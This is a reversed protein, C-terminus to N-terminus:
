GRPESQPFRLAGLHKLASRAAATLPKELTLHYAIGAATAALATVVVAAELPLTRGALRTLAHTAFSLAVPHVLYVAYSAAGFLVLLRPLALPRHWEIEVIGAVFLAAALGFAIRGHLPEVQVAPFFLMFALFAAAGMFALLGPLPMTRHRLLVAVGVGFIFELNFPSLFFSAPFPLPGALAGAVILAAWAPMLWLGKRGVVIVLGFLAYFFIEHVLTWAVGLVPLPPYPLLLASMLINVPDRQSPIGAAPFMLYLLTLPLLVGWYPPYIRLFRKRAYGGLKSRDGLDDWHVWTIIFGSLVFFFDVGVYFYHLHGGFPVDGYFRPEEAIAGAHHLVVLFAAVGRGIELSGIRRQGQKM